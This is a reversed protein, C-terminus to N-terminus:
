SCARACAATTSSTSSTTSRARTAPRTTWGSCGFLESVEIELVVAMKGANIVRRASFPDTVIQFFGKGPGGAQADVYDQLAHMDDIGKRVTTMEDCSNRRNTQLECLIRNENVPMVILCLGGIWARQMWRWYTGEYTVNDRGWATLKPWCSTDHPSVPNGFNLTNQFPASSGQPGEISSCDPLADPIGYPSWPRGCHFNGGLYEYTMWHMHGDIFGGVQGYPEAGKSPTGTANLEAEPYAACGNAPTFALKTGSGGLSLGGDSGAVLFRGHASAPTLTFAGGGADDVQWDAQPSPQAVPGVNGADGAALFQRGPTYLLYSGLRTAQLRLQSGNAVVSGSPARLDYCGGALSFRTPADARAVTPLAAALLLM